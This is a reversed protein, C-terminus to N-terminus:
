RICGFNYAFLIEGKGLNAAAVPLSRYSVTQLPLGPKLDLLAQWSKLDTLSYYTKKRMCIINYKTLLRGTILITHILVQHSPTKSKSPPSLSLIIHCLRDEIGLRAVHLVGIQCICMEEKQLM